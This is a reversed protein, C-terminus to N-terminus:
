LRVVMVSIKAYRTVRAANPGIMRTAFSPRHAGVIILDASIKDAAELVEEYVSGVEVISQVPGIDPLLEQEMQHLIQRAAESASKLTGEKFFSGVFTTGYDPLVTVVSLRADELRALRGAEQLLARADKEHTLDIACLFRKSM